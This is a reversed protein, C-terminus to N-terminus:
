FIIEENEGKGSGTGEDILFSTVVIDDSLIFEFNPKEYKMKSEEMEKNKQQQCLMYLM